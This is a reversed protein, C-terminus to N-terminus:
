SRNSVKIGSQGKLVRLRDYLSRLDRQVKIGIQYYKGKDMSVRLKAFTLKPLILIPLSPRPINKGLVTSM